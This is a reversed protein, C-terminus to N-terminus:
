WDSDWDTYGSDWSDTGWDSDWDDDDWDDGWSDYDDDYDYGGYGGNNCTSDITKDLDLETKAVDLKASFQRLRRFAMQFQRIDLTKDHRFDQYKREGMVQFASQQGPHGGIRLGGPNRGSHGFASGGSTGIWYNGGNHEQNQETVRERYMRKTEAM